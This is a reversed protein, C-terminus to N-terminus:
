GSAEKPPRFRSLLVTLGLAAIAVVTIEGLTDIARFDVLIVNVVNRGYGSPVSTDALYQSVSPDFLLATVGLLLFTVATGALVALTAALVRRGAPVKATSRPLRRLLLVAAVLFVTEVLLQTIALDIAGAVLFVLALATGVGGLSLLAVLRSRTVLVAAVSVAITLALSAAMWSLEFSSAVRWGSARWAAWGVLLVATGLIFALHRHVGGSTLASSVRAALALSTSLTLDYVREFGRTLIGGLGPIGHTSLRWYAYAIVGLLVTCISLYLAPGAGYWLALKIPLERGLVDGVASGVLGKALSPWLGLVLGGVSLVLPGLWMGGPAEHPVKSLRHRRGFFPGVVIIAAAAITLANATVAVLPLAVDFGPLGLKAKYALEKGVFGFLPPLGAMSLGALTAATATVPMHRRLEGLVTVDRSGAEHDVSGTVMFLAGKYLAHVVLFVIAAKISADFSLGILAVLTGLAAITSQALVRKLDTELVSGVAGVLM